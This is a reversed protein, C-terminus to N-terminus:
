DQKVAEPAAIPIKELERAELSVSRRSGAITRVTRHAQLAECVLALSQLVSAFRDHRGGYGQGRRGLKRLGESDGHCGNFGNLETGIADFDLATQAPRLPDGWGPVLCPVPTTARAGRALKVKPGTTFSPGAALEM